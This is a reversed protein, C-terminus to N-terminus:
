AADDYTSFKATTFMPGGMLYFMTDVGQRKLAKALLESAHITM